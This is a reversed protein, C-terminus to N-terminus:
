RGRREEGEECECVIGIVVVRSGAARRRERRGRGREDGGWGLELTAVMTAMM